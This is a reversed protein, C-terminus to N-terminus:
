TGSGINVNNNMILLIYVWGLKFGDTGRVACRVVTKSNIATIKKEQEEKIWRYVVHVDKTIYGDKFLAFIGGYASIAM